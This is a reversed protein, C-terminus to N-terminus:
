SNQISAGWRRRKRLSRLLSKNTQLIADSSKIIIEETCGDPVALLVEDYGLHYSQITSFDNLQLGDADGTFNGKTVSARLLSVFREGRMGPDSALQPLQQLIQAIQIGHSGCNPANEKGDGGLDNDGNDGREATGADMSYQLGVFEYVQQKPLLLMILARRQNKNKGSRSSSTGAALNRSSIEFIMEMERGEEDAFRVSRPGRKGKKNQDAATTESMIRRAAPMYNNSILSPRKGNTLLDEKIYKRFLAHPVTIEEGRRSPPSSPPPLSSLPAIVPKPRSRTKKQKKKSGISGSSNNSSTSSSSSSSLLLQDSVREKDTILYQRFLALPDEELRLGPLVFQSFLGLKDDHSNSTDSSSNDYLYTETTEYSATSDDQPHDEDVVDTTDAVANTQSTSAYSHKDNAIAAATASWLLSQQECLTEQEHQDHSQFPSSPKFTALPLQIFRRLLLTSGIFLLGGILTGLLLGWLTTTTTTTVEDNGNDEVTTQYSSRRGGEMLTRLTTLWSMVLGSMVVLWAIKQRQSEGEAAVMMMMALSILSCLLWSGCATVITRSLFSLSSSIDAPDTGGDGIPVSSTSRLSFFCVACGVTACLLTAVHM